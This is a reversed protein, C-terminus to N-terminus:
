ALIRKAGFWVRLYYASSLNSIIVGTKSTSAHVFQGNGIYIGVHTVSSGNSSFFVLDGPQLESKSVM